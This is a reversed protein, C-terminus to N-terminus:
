FPRINQGQAASRGPTITLISIDTGTSKMPILPSSTSAFVFKKRLGAAAAAGAISDISDNGDFSVNSHIHFDFM